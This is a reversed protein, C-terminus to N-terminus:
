PIVTQPQSVRQNQIIQWGHGMMSLQSIGFWALLITLAVAAMVIWRHLRVGLLVCSAKTNAMKTDFKELRASVRALRGDLDALHAVIKIAVERALKGTDRLEIIEQRLVQFTGLVEAIMESVDQVRQALAVGTSEEHSAAYQSSVVAESVRSVGQAIASSSELWSEATKLQQFVEDLAQLLSEGEKRADAQLESLRQAAQSIGSVRQRSDDVALTVRDLTSDVLNLSKDAASFIGNVVAEVRGRLLWVGVMGALCVLLGVVSLVLTGGGVSFRLMSM